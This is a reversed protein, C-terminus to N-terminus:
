DSISMSPRVFSVDGIHTWFIAAMTVKKNLGPRKKVLDVYAELQPWYGEFRKMIDPVAGSKHDIIALETDGEALLDIIATQSSGDELQVKFPQEVHLTHFGKETLFTRLGDAQASLQTVTMEDLGTHSVARQIEGPKCLLVRLAEHVATGRDSALAFSADSPQAGLAISHHEIQSPLGAISTQVQSPSLVKSLGQVPLATRTIAHRGAVQRPNARPDLRDPNPEPKDGGYPHIEAQFQTEGVTIHTNNIRLKCTEYLVLAASMMTTPEKEKLRTKLYSAPWEIILQDRARTLAVYLLRKLNLDAESRLPDLFRQNHEKTKFIPSFRLSARALIQDLDSFDSFEVSMSGLKPAMNRDLGTVVVVPWERGKSAHWTVLEVGESTKGFPNPRRDQDKEEVLSQLWGIFVRADTGHFGSAARMDRHSSVFAEAEAELRLLDARAELPDDLRDCWDWFGGAKLVLRVAEDAPAGVLQPTLAALPELHVDAIDNGDVLGKLTQELALSAPGLTAACLAAHRDSPDCGYALAHIAAQIPKSLWWGTQNVRVSIGHKRLAAAYTACASNTQCLIAVDRPEIPRERDTHRDIVKATRNALLSSVHDAVCHEPRAKDGGAKRSTNVDLISLPNLSADKRIPTLAQFEEAGFLKPGLANVFKMITAASRYNNTLPSVRSLNATVLQETLRPDAGQFGMIAQKTDGVLLTRRAKQSLAWLFAFQIPNTDQFEDVIVCDIQGVIAELIEPKDRVLQAAHAVMDSYDIVGLEKKRQAYSELITRAGSILATSHIIADDLPGPHRVIQEAAYMVAGALADYHEPTPGGRVSIRLKRLDNWLSWDRDLLSPNRSVKTLVAFNKEFEKKAQDNNAPPPLASPFQRLLAGVASLLSNKLGVPDNSVEGYTQRIYDEAQNALENADARDGLERVQTVVSFVKSRFGDEAGDDNSFDRSYGHAQLNSSVIKLDQCTAIERRILLDREQESILRQTPASGAAFAHETLLRMGLAHITSVYAREVAMAAAPDGSKILQGRIRQRLESAAAETFTVALIREPEVHGSAVWDGLTQQIKYTKGAGAGAPVIKLDTM